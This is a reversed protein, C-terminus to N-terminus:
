IWKWSEMVKATTDDQDAPALIQYLYGNHVFWIQRYKTGGDTTFFAVTSVGDTKIEIPEQMQLDPVDKKIRAITINLDEDFTSVYIQMSFNNKTSHILITKGEGEDFSTVTMDPMNLSFKYTDNTYVNDIITNNDTNTTDSNAIVNAEQNTNATKSQSDPSKFRMYLFGALALLVLILLTLLKNKM